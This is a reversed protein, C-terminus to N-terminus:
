LLYSGRIDVMFTKFLISEVQPVTDAERIISPIAAQPFISTMQPAPTDTIAFIGTLM